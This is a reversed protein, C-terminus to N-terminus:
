RAAEGDLAARVAALLRARSVPKLLVARAGDPRPADADGTTLIVPIDRTRPDSRLERLAEGGSMSPMFLDMLILDPRDALASAIAEEGGLVALAHYGERALMVRTAEALYKDDEVVLVTPGDGKRSGADGMRLRTWCGAVRCRHLPAPPGRCTPSAAIKRGYTM